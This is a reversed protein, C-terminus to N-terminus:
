NLAFPLRYISSSRRFTFYLDKGDHDLDSFLGFLKLYGNESQEMFRFRGMIRSRAPDEFDIEIINLISGTSYIYLRNGIIKLVSFVSQVRMPENSEVPEVPPNVIKRIEESTVTISFKERGSLDAFTIEPIGTISFALYQDSLTISPWNYVDPQLGLPIVREKLFVPEEDRYLSNLQILYDPNTAGSTFISDNVAFVSIFGFKYNASTVAMSDIIGMHNYYTNMSSGMEAVVVHRSNASIGSIFNFEGPGRGKGYSRVVEHTEKDIIRLPSAEIDNLFIVQDTVTIYWPASILDDQGILNIRHEDGIVIETVPHTDLDLTYSIEYATGPYKGTCGLVLCTVCVLVTYFRYSSLVIM